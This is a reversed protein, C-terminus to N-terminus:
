FIWSRAVAISQEQQELCQELLVIGYTWDSTRFFCFLIEVFSGGFWSCVYDEKLTGIAVKKNQTTRPRPFMARCYLDRTM